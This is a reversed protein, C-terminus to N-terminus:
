FNIIMQKGNYIIRKQTCTTFAARGTIVTILLEMSSKMEPYSGQREDIVLRNKEDEWRIIITAFEGKVYNYNDGEDEYM